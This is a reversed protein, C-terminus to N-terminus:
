INRNKEGRKGTVIKEVVNGFNKQLKEEKMDAVKEKSSSSTRGTPSLDGEESARKEQDAKVFSKITDTKMAEDLSIGKGKAYYSIEDAIAKAEPHKMAFEIRDLRESDPPTEKKSEDLKAEAEKRAKESKEFKAKFHKKQALVTTLEKSEKESTKEEDTKESEQTDKEEKSEENSEEESSENKSTKDETENSM